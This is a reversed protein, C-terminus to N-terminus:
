PRLRASSRAETAGFARAPAAEVVPNAKWDPHGPMPPTTTGYLWARLFATLDQGSVESALAIFDATSASTGSYRRVWERELTRFAPDGIRQRLAYLVLQGGEYVNPTFIAFV